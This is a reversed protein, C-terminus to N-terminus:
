VNEDEDYQVVKSQDREDRAYKSQNKGFWYCVGGTVATIATACMCFVSFLLIVIAVIPLADYAPQTYSGYGVFHHQYLPAYSSQSQSDIDYGVYNDYYEDHADDGGMLAGLLAFFGESENSAEVYGYNQNKKITKSKVKKKKNGRGFLKSMFSKGSKAQQHADTGTIAPHIAFDSHTGDAFEMHLLNGSHPIVKYNVKGGVYQQATVMEKQWKPNVVQTGQGGWNLESSQTSPGSSLGPSGQPMPEDKGRPVYPPPPDDHNTGQLGPSNPPEYPPPPDHKPQTGQLQVTQSSAM